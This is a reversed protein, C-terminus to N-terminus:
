CITVLYTVSTSIDAALVFCGKYIKNKINEKYLVAYQFWNRRHKSILYEFGGTATCTLLGLKKPPQSLLIAFIAQATQGSLTESYFKPQQHLEKVDAQCSTGPETKLVSLSCFLLPFFIVQFITEIGWLLLTLKLSLNKTSQITNEASKSSLQLYM